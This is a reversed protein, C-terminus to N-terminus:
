GERRLYRVILRARGATFSGDAVVGVVVPAAGVTNTAAIIGTPASGGANYQAALVQAGTGYVGEGAANLNAIVGVAAPIIGDADVATGAAALYTGVELSTGGVFPDEVLLVASEIVAYAPIRPITADNANAASWAPLNDWTFRYEIEVYNGYTSERAGSAVPRTVPDALPGYNHRVGGTGYEIAM